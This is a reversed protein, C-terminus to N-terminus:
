NEKDIVEFLNRRGKKGLLKVLGMARWRTAMANATDGSVNFERMVALNTFKKPFGEPIQNRDKPKELFKKEVSKIEDYVLEQIEEKMAGQKSEYSDIIDPSAIKIRHPQRAIGGIRLTKTYLKGTVVDFQMEHIKCINIQDEPIKDVATVMYHFQKRVQKDIFDLYPVTIFFFLNKYRFTQTIYNMLRNNLTQWARANAQTGGEEVIVASGKKLPKEIILEGVQKPKWCIRDWMTEKNFTPDLKEAFKMALYSKGKGSPGVFIIMCNENHSYVRRWFIRWLPGLTKVYESKNVM